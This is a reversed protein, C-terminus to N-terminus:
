GGHQWSGGKRGATTISVLSASPIGARALLAAFMARLLIVVPIVIPTVIPVVVPLPVVIMM